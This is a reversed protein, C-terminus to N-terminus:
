VAGRELTTECTEHGYATGSSGPPSSSSTQPTTPHSQPALNSQRGLSLAGSNHLHLHLYGVPNKEAVKCIAEEGPYLFHGDVMRKSM